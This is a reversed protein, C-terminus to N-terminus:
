LAIDLSFDVSYWDLWDLTWEVSNFFFSTWEKPWQRFPFIQTALM